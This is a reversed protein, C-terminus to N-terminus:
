GDGVTVNTKQLPRISVLDVDRIDPNAFELSWDHSCKALRHKATLKGPESLIGVDGITIRYDHYKAMVIEVFWVDPMSGDGKKPKIILAESSEPISHPYVKEENKKV